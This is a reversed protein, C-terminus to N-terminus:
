QKLKMYYLNAKELDEPTDVSIPIQDSLCVGISMGNELARLQELNEIREYESQELKIFKELAHSKFGYIGVHYIFELANHPIMSRSFYLAKNNKDIVIKVNSEHRAIDIGVKVGATVIDFEETKLMNIIKDVSDLDVFPMDGQINIIYKIRDNDPITQFAQFVRDSGTPCDKDTM